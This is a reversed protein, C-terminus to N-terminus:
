TTEGTTNGTPESFQHIRADLTAPSLGHLLKRLKVTGTGGNGAGTSTDGDPVTSTGL